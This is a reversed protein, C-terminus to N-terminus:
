SVRESICPVAPRLQLIGVVKDGNQNTGRCETIASPVSSTNAHHIEPGILCDIVDIM